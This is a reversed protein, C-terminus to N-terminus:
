APETMTFQVVTVKQAATITDTDVKMEGSGSPGSCSGQAKCTVGDPTYVRYHGPAGTALASLTQWIGQKAKSGGSAAAMPSAPLVIATLAVGQDAAACTAPAPGTRHKLIYGAGWGACRADLAANRGSEDIQM